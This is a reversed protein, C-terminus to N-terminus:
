RWMWYSIISRPLLLMTELVGTALLRSWALPRGAPIYAYLKRAAGAETDALVAAASLRARLAVARARRDGPLPESLRLLSPCRCILAPLLTAGFDLHRWGRLFRRLTAASPVTGLVYHLLAAAERAKRYLRRTVEGELGQQLTLLKLGLLEADTRAPAVTLGVLGLVRERLANLPLGVAVLVDLSWLLPWQPVDFLILRRGHVRGAIEQLFKGFEIPPDAALVVCKPAVPAAALRLLGAAVDSLHIPQVLQRRGVVPMVPFKATLRRLLGWLSQPPGGYVLGIRVSVEGPANLMREISFKVRGYRNRADLRASLSSAFVYRKVGASRAAGILMDTGVINTDRSEPVATDHWVHALHIVADVPEIWTASPIPEGLRWRVSRMAATPPDGSGLLTVKHGEQLAKAVVARGIYGRGGTIVFHMSRANRKDEFAMAPMAELM